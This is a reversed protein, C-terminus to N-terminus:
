ERESLLPLRSYVGLVQRTSIPGFYRSDLSNPVRDSFVFLEGAGLVRCGIWRPLPRGARDVQAIPARDRGNIALRGGTTCVLDGPGAAVAKLLPTRGAYPFAAAPAEFAVVRGVAPPAVGGIYLGRPESPTFNAVLWPRGFSTTAGIASVALLPLWWRGLTAGFRLRPTAM